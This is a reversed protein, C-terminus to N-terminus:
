GPNDAADAGAAERGRLQHLLRQQEAPDVRQWRREGMAALPALVPHESRTRRWWWVTTLAVILGLMALGAAALIIVRATEPDAIDASLVDGM